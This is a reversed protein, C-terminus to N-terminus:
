KTTVKGCLGLFCKLEITPEGPGHAGGDDAGSQLANAEEVSLGRFSAKSIGEFLKKGRSNAVWARGEKRQVTFKGLTLGVPACLGAKSERTLFLVYEKGLEYSPLGLNLPVAETGDARATGRLTGAHRFTIRELTKKNADQCGKVAELVEFTYETYPLPQGDPVDRRAFCRGHVIAGARDQLQVLNLELVLSGALPRATPAVLALAWLVPATHLKRRKGSCTKVTSDKPCALTWLRLHLAGPPVLKNPKPAKAEIM